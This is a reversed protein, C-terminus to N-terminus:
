AKSLAAWAEELSMEMRDRFAAVDEDAIDVLPEFGM